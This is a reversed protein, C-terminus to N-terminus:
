PLMVAQEAVLRAIAADDLGLEGLIDRGHQGIKPAPSLAADVAAPIGPMRPVKFAPMDPPEVAVAGGTAIVHPDAAAAHLERSARQSLVAATM